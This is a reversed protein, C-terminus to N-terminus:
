ALAAASMPRPQRKGRPLPVVAFMEAFGAALCESFADPDTVSATDYHVGLYCQGVHSMMVIMMASGPLPGFPYNSVIRVGGIYTDQVHGPVNSAQVDCIVGEAGSTIVGMPLRALIPAAATLVNIAPESRGALVEEQIVQMRRVPDREGLPACIRVAAWQNGAAPDATQRLNVPMALSISEPSTGHREHYLRLAGCLGAIYADNVSCGHQKAAARLTAFPFSLTEFRRNLSRRRLLPSPPAPPGDLLRKLSAGYRVVRQVTGVPSGLARGGSGVASATRAGVGAALTLPLRRLARSTLDRPTIDEPVPLLPAAAVLPGPSYSRIHRDMEIGGVGDTIAHSLKWLLAAKGGDADLGEVLTAEWLPRSM